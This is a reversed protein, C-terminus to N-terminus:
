LTSSLAQHPQRRILRQVGNFYALLDIWSSSFDLYDAHPTALLDVKSSAYGTCNCSSTSPAIKFIM